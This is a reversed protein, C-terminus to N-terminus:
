SCRLSSTECAQWQIVQVRNRFPTGEPHALGHRLAQRMRYDKRKKVLARHSHDLAVALALVLVGTIVFITMLHEM